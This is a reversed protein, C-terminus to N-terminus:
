GGAQTNHLYKFTNAGADVKPDAAPSGTITNM